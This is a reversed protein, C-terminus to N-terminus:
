QSSSVSLKAAVVCVGSWAGGPIMLHQDAAFTQRYVALPGTNQGRIQLDDIKTWNWSAILDRTARAPSNSGTVVFITAGAPVDITVDAPEKRPRRVFSLGSLQQPLQQVVDDTNSFYKVGVQLTDIETEGRAYSVQVTGTNPQEEPPQAAAPPAPPVGSPQAAAAPPGRMAHVTSTDPANNSQVTPSPKVDVPAPPPPLPTLVILSKANPDATVLHSNDPTINWEAAQATLVQNATLVTAAFDMITQQFQGRFSDKRQDDDARDGDGALRYADILNQSLDDLRQAAANFQGIYSQPDTLADAVIPLNLLSGALDEHAADIAKQLQAFVPAQDGDLASQAQKILVNITRMFKCEASIAAFRQTSQKDTPATPLDYRYLPEIPLNRSSLGRMAIKCWLASQEFELERRRALLQDIKNGLSAADSEANKQADANARYIYDFQPPRGVPTTDAGQYQAHLQASSQGQGNRSRSSFSSQRQADISGKSHYYFSAATQGYFDQWDMPGGGQRDMRSNGAAYNAARQEAKSQDRGAAALASNVANMSAEVSSLEITLFVFREDITAWGEPLRAIPSPATQAFSTYAISLTVFFCAAVLCILSRNPQAPRAM